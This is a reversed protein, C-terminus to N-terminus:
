KRYSDTNFNDGLQEIMYNYDGLKPQMVSNLTCSLTIVRMQYLLINNQGAQMAVM